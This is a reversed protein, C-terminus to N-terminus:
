GASSTSASVNKAARSPDPPVSRAALAAGLLRRAGVAARSVGRAHRRRDRLPAGNVLLRRGLIAPDRAFLRDWGRHSLVMVPQGAFARRRGADAHTWAGCQRRAGPLLQRHRAHGCMMRGDIRSDIDSLEAYADTFVSTERRLAEFQPARSARASATPPTAAARRCVDRARGAGRDVRFLFMNLFTFVVAVLGLGLAVTSVITFGGAARAPVHPARLARRPGHRRRVRHRARRPVRRRGAAGSRLARAGDGARRGPEHGRRRAEANRARHPVALEEDLEREVRRPAVLARARLKRDRLNM